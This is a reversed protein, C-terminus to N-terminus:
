TCFRFEFSIFNTSLTRQGEQAVVLGFPGSMMVHKGHLPRPGLRRQRLVSSAMVMRIMSVPRRIMMMLRPVDMM